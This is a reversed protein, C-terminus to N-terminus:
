RQISGIELHDFVDVGHKKMNYLHKLEDICIKYKSTFLLGKEDQFKQTYIYINDKSVNKYRKKKIKSSLIIIKM